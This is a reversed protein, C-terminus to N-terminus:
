NLKELKSGCKSCFSLKSSYMLNCKRCLVIEGDTIEHLIKTAADLEMGLSIFNDRVENVPIGAAIQKKAIEIFRAFDVKERTMKLVSMEFPTECSKCEIFESGDKIKFLPIFFASFYQGTKIHEYSRDAKCKPCYFKGKGVVNRKGKTGLIIM